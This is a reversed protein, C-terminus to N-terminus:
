DGSSLGRSRGILLIASAGMLLLTTVLLSAPATAPVAPPDPSGPPEALYLGMAFCGYSSEPIVNEVQQGQLDSRWIGSWNLWESWYVMGGGLDLEVDCPYNTQGGYFIVELGSGDLNVRKLQGDDISAYYLKGNDLDLDLGVPIDSDSVLHEVNSGNLDARQITSDHSFYIKGGEPDLTIDWVNLHNGPVNDNDLITEVNSGDLDARGISFSDAWYIKQRALDLALSCAGVSDVVTEPVPAGVSARRIGLGAGWYIRGGQPDAAFGCAASPHFTEVNSGDLNARFISGEQAYYIKDTAALSSGALIAALTALGLARLTSM